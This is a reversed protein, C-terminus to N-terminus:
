LGFCEKPSTKKLKRGEQTAARPLSRLDELSLDNNKCKKKSGKRKVAFKGELIMQQKVKLSPPRMTGSNTHLRESAMLAKVEQERKLREMRRKREVEQARIRLMMQFKRRSRFNRYARQIIKASEHLIILFQFFKRSKFGKFVKQIKTASYHQLQSNFSSRSKFGKLYKQITIICLSQHLGAKISPYYKSKAQHRRVQKQILTAHRSLIISNLASLAKSQILRSKIYLLSSSQKQSFILLRSHLSQLYSKLVQTQLKKHKLSHLSKRAQCGRFLSQIKKIKSNLHSLHNRFHSQILKASSTKISYRKKWHKQILLISNKIKIEKKVRAKGLLQRFKKQICLCSKRTKVKKFENRQYFGKIHSQIYKIKKIKRLGEAKKIALLKRVFSQIKICSKLRVQTELSEFARKRRFVVQVILSIRNEKARKIEKRTLYGRFVRQITGAANSLVIRRDFIKERKLSVKEGIIELAAFPLNEIDGYYFEEGKYLYVWKNQNSKITRMAKMDHSYVPQKKQETLAVDIIGAGMSVLMSSLWDTRESCAPSLNVELLWPVLDTDLIIDFGYLEFCEPRSDISDKVSQLTKIVLYHINPLISDWSSGSSELFECFKSLSWVTEEQVKAIHKQLSYNALHRYAEFSDLSFAMQCLRLYCTNYFYVTLPDFSTVLVWQRIDFKNNNILLPNEIYKQVVRAKLQVGCELINDLGQMCKVGSGRANLGPKVIWINRYGDMQYQPVLKCLQDNIEKAAKVSGEDALSEDKGDNESYEVIRKVVDESYDWDDALAECKDNFDNVFKKAIKLALGLIETNVNKGNLVKKIINFSCTRQYDKIFENVQTGDGLDYTRPYFTDINTSHDMVQRLNKHLGSKTTLERNNPFHNFYQGPRLSKYDAECDNFTWRLDFAQSSTHTNEVWGRSILTKRLYEYPGTIIFIKTNEPLGSRRLYEQMLGKFDTNKNNLLQNLNFSRHKGIIESVTPPPLKKNVKVQKEEEQHEKKDTKREKSKVKDEKKELKEFKERSEKVEKHM